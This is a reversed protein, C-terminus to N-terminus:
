GLGSLPLSQFTQVQKPTYTYSTTIGDTITWLGGCSTGAPLEVIDGVNFKLLSNTKITLYKGEVMLGSMLQEDNQQATTDEIWKFSGSYVYRNKQVTIVESDGVETPFDATYRRFLKAKKHPSWMPFEFNQAMTGERLVGVLRDAVAVM